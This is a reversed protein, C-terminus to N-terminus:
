KKFGKPLRKLVEWLERKFTIAKPYGKLTEFFLKRGCSPFGFRLCQAALHLSILAKEEKQLKPSYDKFVRLTARLFKRSRSSRNSHERIYYNGLPLLEIKAKNVYFRLFIEWDERMLYRDKYGGLRKFTERKFCSGSPYAMRGAFLLRKLKPVKLPKKEKIVKGEANVFGKPPGYVADPERELIKKLNELFNEKWLDDCDLFCVYNGKALEVGRNRTQCRELNEENQLLKFDYEKQLNKLIEFTGDTSHDDVVIVEFPKYSQNLISKLSNEVFRRCNFTTLIASIKVM